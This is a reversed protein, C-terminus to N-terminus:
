VLAKSGLTFAVTCLEREPSDNQLPTARGIFAMRAHSPPTLRSYICALTTSGIAVALEGLPLTFNPATKYTAVLGASTAQHQNDKAPVEFNLDVYGAM